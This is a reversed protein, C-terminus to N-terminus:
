PFIGLKEVCCLLCSVMQGTGEERDKHGQYAGAESFKSNKLKM